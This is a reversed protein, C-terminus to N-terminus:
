DEAQVCEDVIVLDVKPGRPLRIGNSYPFQVSQSWWHGEDDLHRWGPHPGPALTCTWDQLRDGCEEEEDEGFSSLIVDAQVLCTSYTVGTAAQIQRALKQQPSRKKKTM